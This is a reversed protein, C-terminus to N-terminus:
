KQEKSFAFAEMFLIHYEADMLNKKLDEQYSIIETSFQSKQNKIDM